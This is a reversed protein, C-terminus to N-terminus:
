YGYNNTNKSRKLFRWLKKYNKQIFELQQQIKESHSNSFEIEITEIYNKNMMRLIVISLFLELKVLRTIVTDLNLTHIIVVMVEHKNHRLTINFPAELGNFFTIFLLYKM